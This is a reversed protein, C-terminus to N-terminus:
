RTKKCVALPRYGIIESEDHSSWAVARILLTSLSGGPGAASPSPPWGLGEHRGARTREARALPWSWCWGSDKPARNEELYAPEMHTHKPLLLPPPPPCAHTQTHTHTHTHARTRAHTHTLTHTHTYARACPPPPPSTYSHTHSINSWTPFFSCQTHTQTHTHTYYGATQHQRTTPYTFQTIQPCQLFCAPKFQDCTHLACARTYTHKHTQTQTHTHTRARARTHKTHM